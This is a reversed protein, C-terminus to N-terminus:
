KAKQNQQGAKQQQQSAQVSPLLSRVKRLLREGDPILYTGNKLTMKAIENLVPQKYKEKGQLFGDADYTGQVLKKMMSERVSQPVSAFAHEGPTPQVDDANLKRQRAINRALSEAIYKAEEEVAAKEAQSEFRVLQGRMMKHALVAPQRRGQQQGPETVQKIRDLIVGQFNAAAITSTQSANDLLENSALSEPQFSPTTQTSRQRSQRPGTNDEDDLEDEEEEDAEEGDDDEHEERPRTVAESRERGGAAKMPSTNNEAPKEVNVDKTRARSAIRESDADDDDTRIPRAPEQAEPGKGASSTNEGMRGPAVNLGVAESDVTESAGPPRANDPVPDRFSPSPHDRQLMKVEESIM